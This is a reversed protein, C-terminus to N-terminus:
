DTKRYPIFRGSVQEWFTESRHIIRDEELTRMDHNFRELRKGAMPKGTIIKTMNLNSM